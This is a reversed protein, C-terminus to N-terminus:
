NIKPVFLSDYGRYKCTFGCSDMLNNITDFSINLINFFKDDCEIEVNCRGYQSCLKLLNISGNLIDFEGGQVDMKILILDSLNFDQKNKEYWEDLTISNVQKKVVGIPMVNGSCCLENVSSNDERNINSYFDTKQKGKEGILAINEILM